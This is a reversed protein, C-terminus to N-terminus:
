ENNLEDFIIDKAPFIPGDKCCCRNGKVTKISCGLCAGVGCAFRSELSIFCPVNNTECKKKLARLMPISGCGFVMNYREIDDLFDTVIGSPANMGDEATVIIKKANLGGGLVANEEEKLCFGYKFGAYLDFDCEPKEAALAALPAIGVSGSVLATKGRSAESSAGNIVESSTEEKPLFDAWANGLPGTLFVNDGPKLESLERTGKGRATILFKLTKEEENYEFVSIPRQLFVSSHLPKMMFFQGAKPKEPNDWIFHLIFFNNNIHQNASLGCVIATM